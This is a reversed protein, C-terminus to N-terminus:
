CRYHFLNFTRIFIVIIFDVRLLANSLVVNLSSKTRMM